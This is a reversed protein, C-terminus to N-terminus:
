RSETGEVTEWGRPVYWPFVATDTWTPDLARLDAECAEILATTLELSLLAERYAVDDEAAQALRIVDKIWPLLGESHNLAIWAPHRALDQRSM